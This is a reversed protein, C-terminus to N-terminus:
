IAGSNKLTSKFLSQCSTWFSSVKIQALNPLSRNLIELTIPQLFHGLKKVWLTYDAFAEYHGCFLRTKLHWRCHECLWCDSWVSWRATFELSNTRRCIFCSKWVHQPSCAFCVTLSAPCIMSAPSWSSWVCACLLGKVASLELCRVITRPHTSTAKRGAVPEEWERLTTEQPFEEGWLLAQM